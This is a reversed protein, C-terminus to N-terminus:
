LDVIRIFVIIIFELVPSNYKLLFVPLSNLKATKFIQQQMDPENNNVTNFIENKGVYGHLAESLGQEVQELFGDSSLFHISLWRRGAFCLIPLNPSREPDKSRLAFNETRRKLNVVHNMLGLRM